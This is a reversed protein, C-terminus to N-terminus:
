QGADKKKSDKTFLNAFFSKINAWFIKVALSGGLLGALILQLIYSGSGPDLYAQAQHPFTLFLLGLAILTVIWRRFGNM